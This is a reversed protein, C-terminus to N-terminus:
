EGEKVRLAAAGLALPWPLCALIYLWLSSDMSAFGRGNSLMTIYGFGTLAIVIKRRFSPDAIAAATACWSVAGALGWPLITRFMPMLMEPPFGFYRGALIFALSAVCFLALMVGLGTIIQVGLSLCSSVPLHFLLRLRKNTSEPILQVSALWVGGLVFAWQLSNFYITDKAIIGNWTDIAGHMALVGKLTLCYDALAAGAFMFPVWLFYRLKLWEKFFLAKIM